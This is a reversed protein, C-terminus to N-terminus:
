RPQCTLGILAHAFVRSQKSRTCAIRDFHMCFMGHCVRNSLCQALEIMVFTSMESQLLAMNMQSVRFRVFATRAIHVLIGEHM